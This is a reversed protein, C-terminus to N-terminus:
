WYNWIEKWCFSKGIFALQYYSLGVLELEIGILVSRLLLWEIWYFLVEDFFHEKCYDELEDWNFLVEQKVFETNRLIMAFLLDFEETFPMLILVLGWIVPGIADLILWVKLLMFSLRLILLVKLLISRKLLNALEEVFVLLAIRELLVRELM